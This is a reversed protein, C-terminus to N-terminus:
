FRRPPRAEIGGVWEDKGGAGSREEKRAVDARANLNRKERRGYNAPALRVRPTVRPAAVSVGRKAESTIGLVDNELRVGAHARDTAHYLLHANQDIIHLHQTTTFHNCATLKADKLIEEVLISSIM